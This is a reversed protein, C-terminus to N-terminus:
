ATRSSWSGALAEGHCIDWPLRHCQGVNGERRELWGRQDEVINTKKHSKEQMEAVEVRIKAFILTGPCRLLVIICSFALLADHLFFTVVERVVLNYQNTGNALGFSLIHWLVSWLSPINLPFSPPSFFAFGMHIAHTGSCASSAFPQLPFQSSM